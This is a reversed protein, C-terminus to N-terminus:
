LNKSKGSPVDSEIGLGRDISVDDNSLEDDEIHRTVAKERKMRAYREEAANSRSDKDQQMKKVTNKQVNRTAREDESNGDSTAGKNDSDDENSTMDSVDDKDEVAEQVRANQLKKLQNKKSAISLDRV